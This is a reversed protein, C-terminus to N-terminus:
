KSDIRGTDKLVKFCGNFGIQDGLMDYCRAQKELGKLIFILDMENFINNDSVMISKYLNDISFAYSNEKYRAIMM